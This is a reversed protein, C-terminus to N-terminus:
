GPEGEKGEKRLHDTLRNLGKQIRSGGDGFDFLHIAEGPLEIQIQLVEPHEMAWLTVTCIEGQDTDRFAVEAVEIKQNAVTQLLEVMTVQKQM